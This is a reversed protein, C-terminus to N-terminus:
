VADVTERTEPSQLTSQLGTGKGPDSISVGLIGLRHPEEKIDM